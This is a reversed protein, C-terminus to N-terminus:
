TGERGYDRTRRTRPDPSDTVGHAAREHAEVSLMVAAARGRQTIALPQQTARVRELAAAAGQCLDTVPIVDSVNPM